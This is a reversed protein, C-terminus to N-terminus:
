TYGGLIVGVLYEGTGDPCLVVDDERAGRCITHLAGCALGAAVKSKEPHVALFKPICWANFERWDEVLGTSLDGEIQWDGGIFGEERCIDAYVSKQGLMIRFYSKHPDIM